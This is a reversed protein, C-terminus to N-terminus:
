ERRMCLRKHGWELRRDEKFGGVRGLDATLLLYLLQRHTCRPSDVCKTVRTCTMNNETKM